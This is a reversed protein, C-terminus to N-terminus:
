RVNVHNFYENVKNRYFPNLAPPVTRLLEAEKQKQHNYEFFQKPNSFYENKAEESKRKQDQEREKEAKESELLRTLIEQQRKLTEETLRKNVLDTETKDMQEAIKQLQGSSGGQQGDKGDKMLQNAADQIMQRLASQQAALKALEKSMSGGQGSKKGNPNNMGEMLEKMQQNLQQQMKRMTAMSPKPSGKGGPKSCSGSGSSSKKQQQQMQQQMQQLSESLMLALNNIGTMAFQQRSSAVTTQREELAKIAKDMNMNIEGIEKNVFSQIQIQRKSLAFLSDEIMKADDRLKKQDQGLRTYQPNNRDTTNSRKSLEEEDFSLKLLNELIQRLAEMDEGTQEMEMASQMQSMKEALEEMNKAANKQQSSAKKPKNNQLEQSSNQMEQSIEQQKEQTEEMKLEQGLEKNLEEIKKLEEKLDKFEKNLQDQKKELDKADANKEESKKSLEEQKKALDELNEKAKSFKQELELQKFLSLNRDLEKELEKAELKMKELEQQAQNKDLNELMKEMKEMLQKLEPSMVKEFLEQLQKQKEMIAESFQQHENQQNLNKQNESKIERIQKELQKQKELIDQLKMKEEWSLTKKELMKRNLESIEKQLQKADKISEELQDKIKENNKDNRDALEKLSPIRFYMMNSRASKRGNVADNDWVEFYYELKDGPLLNIMSLDWYHYFMQQTQDKVYPVEVTQTYPRVTDSESLIRFTFNLGTFGYDDRIKGRFYFKKDTLSDKRGEAEIEPRQDPVVSVAYKVSDANKMFSNSASVVYGFGRLVRSSHTFVGQETQHPHIVSDGMLLSVSETNRTSFIWTARTGEPITLDGTNTVTEDKKGTYSPYDLKVQFNLLVPKPLVELEYERSNYGDASLVFRINKQINKFIHKFNLKDVRSLKYEENGSKIFIEMPIEKGAVGLELTFDETQVAKLSNNKIRFEFPAPKEFYTDHSIIRRTSGTIVDPSFFILFFLIFLPPLVWKLYKRNRTFDIASSFPVPRLEAIKQDIGAYILESSASADAQAKLQLVNVLKDKVESFHSGIIAAAQEHTIIKGLKRLKLLPSVVWRALIAGLFLLLTYFMFTRVGTGFRGYYELIAALLFFGVGTGTFYLVGRILENKYFKRIFDDLKQVLIHYNTQKM